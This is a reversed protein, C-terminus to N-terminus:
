KNIIQPAFYVDKVMGLNTPYDKAGGNQRRRKPASSNQHQSTKAGALASVNTYLFNSVSLNALTFL